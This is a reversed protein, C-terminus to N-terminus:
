LCKSGESIFQTSEPSPVRVGDGDGDSVSVSVVSQVIVSGTNASPVPSPGSRCESGM